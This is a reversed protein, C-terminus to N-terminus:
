APSGSHHLKDDSPRNDVPGVGDLKSFAPYANGFKSCAVFMVFGMNKVM